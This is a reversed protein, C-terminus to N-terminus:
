KGEPAATTESHLLAKIRNRLVEGMNEGLTGRSVKDRLEADLRRLAAELDTVRQEADLRAEHEIDWAKPLETALRRNEAELALLRDQMAQLKDAPVTVINGLERRDM